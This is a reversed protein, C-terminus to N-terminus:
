TKGRERQSPLPTGHEVTTRTNGRERGHSLPNPPSPLGLVSWAVLLSFLVTHDPSLYNGAEVGPVQQVFPQLVYQVHELLFRQGVAGIEDREHVVLLARQGIEVIRVVGTSLDVPGLVRAGVPVGVRVGVAVAPDLGPKGVVLLQPVAVPQMRQDVTRSRAALSNSSQTWRSM